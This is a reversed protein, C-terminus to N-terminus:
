DTKLPIPKAIEYGQAYDVKLETLMEIITPNSVFEAITKKGMIHGMTNIAEIMARNDEDKHMTKVFIGDIKLFDVPLNKLYNFSSFGSGFDDLAFTCGTKKLEHIFDHATRMNSITATETIEFCISDPEIKTKEFENKIFGLLSEDSMSHASLNVSLSKIHQLKGKVLNEQFLRISEAVVWKDIQAMMNYREAAPIFDAPMIMNNEEDRMRILIEGKSHTNELNILPRIEQVYLEFRNEDLAKSLKSVWEMEGRHQQFQNEKKNFVKIRNGGEEKALFCADDAEALFESVSDSSNDLFSIGISTDYAFVRNNIKL